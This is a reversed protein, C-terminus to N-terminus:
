QRVKTFHIKNIEESEVVSNDLRVQISDEKILKPPKEMLVFDLHTLVLLWALARAAKSLLRGM